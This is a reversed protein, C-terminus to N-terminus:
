FHKSYKKAKVQRMKFHNTLIFWSFFSWSSVQSGMLELSQGQSEQSVERDYTDALAQVEELQKELEVIQFFFPFLFYCFCNTSIHGFLKLTNFELEITHSELM